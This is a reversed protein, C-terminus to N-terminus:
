LCHYFFRIGQVYTITGGMTGGVCRMAIMMGYSKSMGFLAVSVAMGVTGILVVPKRGYRDSIWSCPLVSYFKLRRAASFCPSSTSAFFGTVQFISEIFGTYFGVEEPRRAINNELIM